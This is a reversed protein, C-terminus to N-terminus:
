MRRRPRCSPSWNGVSSSRDASNPILRRLRRSHRDRISNSPCTQRPVACQCLLRFVAPAAPASRQIALETAAARAGDQLRARGHLRRDGGHGRRACRIRVEGRHFVAQPPRGFGGIVLVPHLPVAGKVKGNRLRGSVVDENGQDAAEIGDPCPWGPAAELSRADRGLNPSRRYCM